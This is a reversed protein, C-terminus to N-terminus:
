RLPRKAMIAEERSLYAQGGSEIQLTSKNVRYPVNFGKAPRDFTIWKRGVKAIVRELPNLNLRFHNPRLFLTQGIKLDTPDM